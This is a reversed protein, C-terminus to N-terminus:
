NSNWKKAKVKRIWIVLMDELAGELTFVDAM